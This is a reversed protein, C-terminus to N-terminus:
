TRRKTAHVIAVVTVMTSSVRFLIRHSKCVVQRLVRSERAIPYRHPFIALNMIAHEIAEMVDAAVEASVERELYEAVILLEDRARQNIKVRYVKM